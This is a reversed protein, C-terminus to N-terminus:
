DTDRLITVANKKIAAVSNGFFIWSAKAPICKNMLWTQKRLKVKQSISEVHTHDTYDSPQERSLQRKIQPLFAIMRKLLDDVRSRLKV